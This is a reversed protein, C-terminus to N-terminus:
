PSQAFRTYDLGYLLYCPTNINGGIFMVLIVTGPKPGPGPPYPPNCNEDHDESAGCGCPVEFSWTEYSRGQRPDLAPPMWDTTATGLVQPVQATIWLDPRRNTSARGLYIGPWQQPEDAGVTGHVRTSM